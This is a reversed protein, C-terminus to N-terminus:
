KKPELHSWLLPDGKICAVLVRRSIVRSRDVAPVWSPTLLANPVFREELDDESLQRGAAADAKLFLVKSSQKAEFTSWLLPDGAIMPVLAVQNVIYSASDPKVISSTVFQEPVWRQSIMEMTVTAGEPIDVAAVVVPVLNWGKRADAYAKKVWVYGGGGGLCLLALGVMAGSAFGVFSSGQPPGSHPNLPTM